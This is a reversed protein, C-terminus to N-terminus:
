QHVCQAQQGGGIEEDSDNTAHHYSQQQNQEAISQLQDKDLFIIDSDKVKDLNNKSLEAIDQGTIIKYIATRQENSLQIEDVSYKIYLDGKESDNDLGEGKIRVIDGNRVFTGTIEIVRNDLHKLEKKFGCVSEAFSLKVTTSLNLPNYPSHDKKKLVNRKFIPHEEINVIVCVKGRKYMDISHGENKLMIIEKDMIGKNVYFLIEHNEKFTKSGKCKTCVNAKSVTSGTGNCSDCQTIFQKVMNKERIMKTVRGQGKCQKCESSKKDKNGTGDCESCMSVREINMKVQSGEYIKALNTNYVVNIPKVQKKRSMQHGPFGHHGQAFMNRIMEESLGGEQSDGYTDYHKRSEPNSLIKNANNIEAMIKGYEEKKDAPAKDPHYKRLLEKYKKKIESDPASKDVGLIEYPTKNSM